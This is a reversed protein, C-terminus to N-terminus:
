LKFGLDNIDTEYKDKWIVSYDRYKEEDHDKINDDVFEKFHRAPSFYGISRSWRENTVPQSEKQANIAKDEMRESDGNSRKHIDVWVSKM